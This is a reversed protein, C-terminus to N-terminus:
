SDQDSKIIVYVVSAISISLAILLLVIFDNKIEFTIQSLGLELLYEKLKNHNSLYYFISVVISSSVVSDIIALRYLVASRLWMAAGFISMIQMRKVHTFRWVEMQRIVLLFSILFILVSFIIMITKNLLLMSYLNNHNKAFSEIKLINKNALLSSEIKKLEDSSPYKTLKIRYFKPLSVKLLAINAASLDGKINEVTSSSDIKEVSDVFPSLVKAFSTNIEVHSVVILSYENSIKQEYDTVIRQMSIVSQISLLMVVLAFILSLHSKFTNM